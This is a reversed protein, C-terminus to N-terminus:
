LARKRKLYHSLNQAEVLLIGWEVEKYNNECTVSKPNEALFFTLKAEPVGYQIAGSNSLCSLPLVDADSTYLKPM